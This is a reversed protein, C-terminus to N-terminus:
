KIKLYNTENEERIWEVSWKKLVDIWNKNENLCSIFQYKEGGSELFVERNEMDMEELTELCDAVFSPAVVKINKKGNKALNVLTEDTYPQLWPDRGLRSQFSTSYRGEKLGLRKAIEATSKYAQHRYCFEHAESPTQCCSADIKCHSQTVDSKKIHREPLGHYSFLFYDYDENTIESEMQKSIATLYSEDKYFAPLVEMTMGEFQGIVEKAKEIVTETTSMAFQPYLPIMLVENVGQEYLKELGKKISPAGYRMGLEVPCNLVDKLRDTMKQSIVVLPSGEKTWIKQYAAASKKARTNVIIGKVLLWRFVYPIDIVREDMLFEGLYKKVDKPKPSEPSGLNVLLIGKM